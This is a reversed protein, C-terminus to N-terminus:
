IHLFYPLTGPKAIWVFQLYSYFNQKYLVGILFILFFGCGLSLSLFRSIKLSRFFGVKKELFAVFIRGGDLPYCPLLNILGLSVNSMMFDVTFNYSIPFVWWLAITTIALLFNMLPGAIAIKISDVRDVDDFEGYLM